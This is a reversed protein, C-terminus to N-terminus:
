LLLTQGTRAPTPALGRRGFQRQGATAVTVLYPAGVELTVEPGAIPTATIWKRNAVMCATIKQAATMEIVHAILRRLHVKFTSKTFVSHRLHNACIVTRWEGRDTKGTHATQGVPPYTDANIRLSDLRTMWLLVASVFSHVLREFTM